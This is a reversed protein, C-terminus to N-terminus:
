IHLPCWTSHRDSGVSSSGCECKGKVGYLTTDHSIYVVEDGRKFNKSLIAPQQQSLGNPVLELNGYYCTSSGGNNDWCVLCMINSVATVTGELSNLKYRVRDGVNFM